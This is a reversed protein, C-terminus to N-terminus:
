TQAVPITNEPTWRGETEPDSQQDSLANGAALRPARTMEHISLGM